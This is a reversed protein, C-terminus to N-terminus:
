NQGKGSVSQVIEPWQYPYGSFVSGETRPGGSYVPDVSQRRIPGCVGRRVVGLLLLFFSFRFCCCFFNFIEIVARGIDQDSVCTGAFNRANRQSFTVSRLETESALQIMSMGCQWKKKATAILIYSLGPFRQSAEFNRSSQTCKRRWKTRGIRGRTRSSTGTKVFKLCLCLIAVPFFDCIEYAEQDKMCLQLVSFPLSTIVQLSM